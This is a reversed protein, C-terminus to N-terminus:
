APCSLDTRTQAARQRGRASATPAYRRDFEALAQCAQQTRNLRGLAAALKLTSEAAWAGTPWGRLSVAYAAAAGQWDERMYRAEGLHHNAEPLRRDRPNSAIFAQWAAEAAAYDGSQSASRAASWQADPGSAAPPAPPREAPPPPAQVPPEEAPRPREYAAQEAQRRLETQAREIRNLREVLDQNREESAALSRRAAALETSLTEVTGNLTRLSQELDDIRASSREAGERITSLSQAVGPQGATGDIQQRIATVDRQLAEIARDQRGGGFLQASAPPSAALVALVATAALLRVHRM